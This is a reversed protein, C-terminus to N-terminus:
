RSSPRVWFFEETSRNGNIHSVINLRLKSGQVVGEYDVKGQPSVLSFKIKRNKIEFNGSDSYPKRFWPKIERPNGSTTVGIVTGDSYFRIYRCFTESREIDYECDNSKWLSSRKRVVLRHGPETRSPSNLSSQALDPQTALIRVIDLEPLRRRVGALVYRNFNEDTLFRIM